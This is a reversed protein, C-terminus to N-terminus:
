AAHPSVGRRSVRTTASPTRSRERRPSRSATGARESRHDASREASTTSGTALHKGADPPATARNSTTNLPPSRFDPDPHGSGHQGDLASLRHSHHRMRTPVLLGPVATGPRHLYALM